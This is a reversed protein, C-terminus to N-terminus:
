LYRKLVNFVTFALLVGILVCVLGVELQQQQAIQELQESHIEMVTQIAEVTESSSGGDSETPVVIEEDNM